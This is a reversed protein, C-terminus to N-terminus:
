FDWGVSTIIGYDNKEAVVAPPDSDFSNYFSLDWFLDSVIEWKLSVDLEARVRGFDSLNPIIDLRTSFDLEPEDYRFWQMNLSVQGEISDETSGSDDIEEHSLLLAGLIAINNHNTQRLFRGGGGGISTRLDLGLEDNTEFGFLGGTFWREPRLRIYRLAIDARESSDNDSSDTLVSGATLTTVRKETRYNGELSLNFQTVDSAKTFNYGASIDGDLREVFTSEIPNLYVVEDMALRRQGGPTQVNLAAAQDSQRLHGLYRQGNELEVQLNQDSSLYAVDDWEIGITGTANTNFSLRGRQLSKIEGTLRDGNKFVLVDTKPAASAVAILFFCALGLAARASVRSM